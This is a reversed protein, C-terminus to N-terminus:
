KASAYNEGATVVQMNLYNTGSPQGNVYVSVKIPYVGQPVGQPMNIAFSTQYAGADGSENAVKRPSTQVTGDPKTISFAEEVLPKVGDTGQVIEINSVVTMKSGSKVVNTPKFNSNFSAIHSQVPLTGMKKKYEAQVQQASKTQQSNYNWAVCALSALGAGVAAGKVRNNGQALGAGAIAGVLAMMGADCESGGSLGAPAQLNACGTVVTAAVFGCMWKYTRARM